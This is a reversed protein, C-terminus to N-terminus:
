LISARYIGVFGEHGAEECAAKRDGELVGCVNKTNTSETYEIHRKLFMRDQQPINHKEFIQNLKADDELHIKSVSKVGYSGALAAISFVTYLVPETLRM